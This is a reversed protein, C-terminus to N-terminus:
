SREAPEALDAYLPGSVGSHYKWRGRILGGAKIVKSRSVWVEWIDMCEPKEEQHQSVHCLAWPLCSKNALWLPNGVLGMRLIGKRNRAPSVHYLIM